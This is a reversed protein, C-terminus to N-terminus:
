KKDKKGQVTELFVPWNLQAEKWGLLSGERAPDWSASLVGYTIGFGATGFTLTSTLLPLWEPVDVKKVVKLYYFLPFFLVGVALPVGVTLAIRKLMRNTVVEPVVDDDVEELASRESGSDSVKGADDGSKKELAGSKKKLPAGFGKKEKPSQLSFCIGPASNRRRNWDVRFGYERCGSPRSARAVTFDRREAVVLLPLGAVVAAM